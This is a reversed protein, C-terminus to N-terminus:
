AEVDHPWAMQLCGGRSGLGVNSTRGLWERELHEVDTMVDDLRVKGRALRDGKGGCWM